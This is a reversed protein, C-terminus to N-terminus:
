LKRERERRELYLVMYRINVVSILYSSWAHMVAVTLNNQLVALTGAPEQLWDENFAKCGTRTLLRIWQVTEQADRFM